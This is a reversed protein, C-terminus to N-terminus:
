AGADSTLRSDILHRVVVTRRTEAVAASGAAKLQLTLLEIAKM